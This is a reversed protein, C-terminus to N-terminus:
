LIPPSRRRSALPTDSSIIRFTHSLSLSLFSHMSECNYAPVLFYGKAKARKAAESVVVLQFDGGRHASVESNNTSPWINAIIDKIIDLEFDSLNIRDLGM